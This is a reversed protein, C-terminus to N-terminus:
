YDIISQSLSNECFPLIAVFVDHYQVQFIYGLEISLLHNILDSM